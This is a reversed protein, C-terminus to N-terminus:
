NACGGFCKKSNNTSTTPTKQQEHAFGLLISPDGESAKQHAKSRVIDKAIISFMESVGAAQVDFHM